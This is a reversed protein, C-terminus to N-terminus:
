TNFVRDGADGLGPVIYANENLREDLAATYISVEPAAKRVAAVGEPSAILGLFRIDKVGWEQLAQIAVLASGGTALMPDVVFAIDVNCTEPLKNYYEVPQHTAEDRYFGLHLVQAEPLLDLFPDEMALGARLIPVIAVRADVRHCTTEQIPTQVTVPSEPLDRTAETVVLTAIRRAANRFAEPSTAQDRLVALHHRVVAHNVEVVAAM